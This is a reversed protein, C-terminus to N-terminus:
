HNTKEGNVENKREPGRRVNKRKYYNLPHNIVGSRCLEDTEKYCLGLSMLTNCSPVMYERGRGTGTIHEIQYKTIKEAFDPVEGFYKFIEDNSLGIRHLFTVLFFRAPHSVNMGKSMQSIIMTLCPPFAKTNLPGLNAREQRIQGGRVIIKEAYGKLIPSVEEPFSSLSNVEEMYIRYFAERILKAIIRRDAVVRGEIMEQNCLKLEKDNFVVANKLFSQVSVLYRGDRLEFKIGLEKAVLMINRHDQELEINDYLIKRERIAYRASVFYDRIFTLLIKALIFKKVREDPEIPFSIDKGNVVDLIDRSVDALYNSNEELFESLPKGFGFYEKLGSKIFPYKTILDEKM